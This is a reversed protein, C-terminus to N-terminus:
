RRISVITKFHQETDFESEKRHLRRQVNDVMWPKGNYLVVCGRTLEDVDDDTELTIIDKDFMFVNAQPNAQNYQPSVEKAYFVGNSENKLIWQNLSGVIPSDDRVWYVCETYNSRRSHYIDVNGM